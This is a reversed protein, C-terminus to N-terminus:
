YVGKDNYQIPYFRKNKIHYQFDQRTDRADFLNAEAQFVKTHDLSVINFYAATSLASVKIVNPSEQFRLTQTNLSVIYHFRDLEVPENCTIWHNGNERMKHMIHQLNSEDHPDYARIVEFYGYTTNPRKYINVVVDILHPIDQENNM